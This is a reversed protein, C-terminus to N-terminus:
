QSTARGVGTLGPEIRPVKRSPRTPGSQALTAPGRPASTREVELTSLFNCGLLNARDSSPGQFRTDAIGPLDAPSSLARANATENATADDYCQAPQGTQSPSHSSADRTPTGTLRVAAAERSTSAPVCASKERPDTRLVSCFIPTGTVVPLRAPSAPATCSSPNM